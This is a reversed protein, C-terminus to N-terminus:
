VGKELTTEPFYYHLLEKYTKGEEAMVNAGYQSFGFGHGSGKCTIRIQNEQQELSFCSSSLGYKERFVEGGLVENGVKVWLVYGANDSELIEMSFTEATLGFDEPTFYYYSLYTSCEEDRYSPVSILYPYSSEEFFSFADRTIGSSNYFFPCYCVENEYTLVEGETEKCADEAVDYRDKWEYYKGEQFYGYKENIQDISIKGSGVQNQLNSRLIVTQAKVTEMHMDGKLSYAVLFPLYSEASEEKYLSLTGEEQFALIFLFPLLLWLFIFIIVTKKNGM